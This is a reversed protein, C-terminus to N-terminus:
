MRIAIPLIIGVGLILIQRAQENYDGIHTRQMIEYKSLPRGFYRQYAVDLIFGMGGDTGAPDLFLIKIGVEIGSHWGGKRLLSSKGVIETTRDNAYKYINLRESNYIILGPTIQLTLPYMLNMRYSYKLVLHRYVLNYGTTDRRCITSRLSQYGLEWGYVNSGLINKRRSKSFGFDAEFGYDFSTYGIGFDRLYAKRFNSYLPSIFNAKTKINIYMPYPGTGTVKRLDIGSFDTQALLRFPNFALM